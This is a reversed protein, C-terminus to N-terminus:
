WSRCFGENERPTETTEPRLPGTKMLLAPSGNNTGKEAVSNTKMGDGIAPWSDPIVSIIEVAHM